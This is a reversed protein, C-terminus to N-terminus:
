QPCNADRWPNSPYDTFNGAFTTDGGEPRIEGGNVTVYYEVQLQVYMGDPTPTPAAEPCHFDRFPDRDRWSTKYRANNGDREDLSVPDTNWASAGVVRWHLEADLDQWLDPNDLDTEGPQYVEFCLNAVAARQRAWTDFTFGTEAGAGGDCPDDADRVILNEALGLWRPPQPIAFVYNTGFNSDYGHCGYRNETEFWVEIQQAGDTPVTFTADGDRVSASMVTGEPDFKVNATIDYQPLGGMVSECQALRTADYQIKFQGGPALVGTRTQTFDAAFVLTAVDPSTPAQCTAQAGWIAFDPAALAYNAFDDANRNHDFLRGGETMMLYPEVNITSLDGAAPLHSDIVVTYKAYGPTASGDTVPTVTGEYWLPDSGWQYMLHPEDGEAAAPTSIEIAGAYTAGSAELGRLIVNCNRDASDTSGDVGVLPAPSTETTASDAATCAAACVFALVLPRMGRRFLV